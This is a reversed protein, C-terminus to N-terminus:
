FLSKIKFDIKKIVNYWSLEGIALNRGNKGLKNSLKKDKLLLLFNKAMGKYDEPRSTLGTNYKEIYYKVEGLANSVIPKGASLYDGLRIPFRAEEIKNNDMPLALIDASSLYYPLLQKSCWGTMKIRDIISKFKEKRDDPILLSSLFMLQCDPSKKILQEFAALLLDLSGTYTNGMSLIIKKGPSIKLKNRSLKRSIPKIEKYNCGNPLYFIKEKNIGIELARKILPNSACTLLDAFRPFLSESKELVFGVPRIHMLSFGGGWLDDWDVILKKRRLFKGLFAPISIQPQAVTFAYLLDYDKFLVFIVYWWFRLLLQGTYYRHYKIRPLTYISFNETYKQKRVLLDFDKGSACVMVVEHGLEAM